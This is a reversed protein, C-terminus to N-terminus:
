DASQGVENNEGVGGGDCVGQRGWAGVGSGLCGRGVGPM